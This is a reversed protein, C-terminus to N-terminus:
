FTMPDHVTEILPIRTLPPETAGTSGADACPPPIEVGARERQSRQTPRLTTRKADPKVANRRGAGAVSPARPVEFAASGSTQGQCTLPSLAWQRCRADTEFETGRNRTPVGRHRCRRWPTAPSMSLVTAFMCPQRQNNYYGASAATCDNDQAQNGRDAEGEGDGRDRRIMCGAAGISNPPEPIRFRM